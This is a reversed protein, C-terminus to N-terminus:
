ADAVVEFAAGKMRTKDRTNIRGPNLHFPDREYISSQVTTVHTVTTKSRQREFLSEPPPKLSRFIHLKRKLLAPPLGSL